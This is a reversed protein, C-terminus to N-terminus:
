IGYTFNKGMVSGLCFEAEKLLEDNRNVRAILETYESSKLEANVIYLLPYELAEFEIM